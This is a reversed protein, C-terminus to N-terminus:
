KGDWDRSYEGTEKFQQVSQLFDDSALTILEAAMSHNLQQEANARLPTNLISKGMRVALPANELVSGLLKEASAELEDRPVVRNVLGAELAEDAPMRRGTLLMEKARAPGLVLPWISAAGDGPATGFAVHNDQLYAEEEMVIFDCHLALNAAFGIAPGNLIAMTPQPVELLTTIIRVAIRHLEVLEGADREVMGEDVDGGSSFFAGSGTLQFARVDRDDAVRQFLRPLDDHVSQPIANWREPRDFRMRLVGQSPQEFEVGDYRDYASLDLGTVHTGGAGYVRCVGLLKDTTRLRHKTLRFGASWGGSPPISRPPTSRFRFNRSCDARLASSWSLTPAKQTNVAM